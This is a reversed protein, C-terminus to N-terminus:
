EETMNYLFTFQLVLRDGTFDPPLEPFPSSAQIAAVAARDLPNSGSPAVARLNEIRGPETITFVIVVRGRLTGIRAAEPILAYWNTRVRNIVQNMYPGFDYGRTDSLIEPQDTTLNPMVDGAAGGAGSGSRPSQAVTEDILTEAQRRINPLVLANPNTNEAVEAPPEPTTEAIRPPEAAEGGGSDEGAGGEGGRDGPLVPAPPRIEAAESPESPAPPADPRAGEAVVDDPGIIPPPPVPPAEPQPEPEPPVAAEAPPPPPPPAAAVDPVPIVPEPSPAVLDPPLYLDVIEFRDQDYDEGEVYVVRRASTSLFDPNLLFFLLLLGHLAASVALGKRRLSDSEPARQLEFQM